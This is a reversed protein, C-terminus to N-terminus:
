DLTPFEVWMDLPQMSAMSDWFYFRAHTAGDPIADIKATLKGQTELAGGVTTETVAVAKMMDNDDYLALIGAVPQVDGIEGLIKIEAKLAGSDDKTLRADINRMGPTYIRIDDVLMTGPNHISYIKLQNINHTTTNNTSFTGADTMDLAKVFTDDSESKWYLEYSNGVVHFIVNIWEGPTFSYEAPLQTLKNNIVTFVSTSTGYFYLRRAATDRAASNNGGNFVLQIWFLQIPTEPTIQLRLSCYFEEPMISPLNFSELTCGTDIQVDAGQSKTIKLATNGDATDLSLDSPSHSICFGREELSYTDDIDEFDENLYIGSESPNYAVIKLNDIEFDGKGRENFLKVQSWESDGNTSVAASIHGKQKTFAEAGDAKTYFVVSQGQTVHACVTTWNETIGGPIGGNYRFKQGKNFFMQLMLNGTTGNIRRVRFTVMFESNVPEFLYRLGVATGEARGIIKATGDSVCVDSDSADDLLVFREFTGKIYSGFKEFNIGNDFTEDLIVEESLLTRQAAALAAFSNFTFIILLIFTVFRKM